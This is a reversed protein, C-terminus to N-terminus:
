GYLQSHTGITIFYITKGGEYEEFVARYYGTINISRCGSYEGGLAHNNLLPHFQERIFLNIREDCRAQEAKRLKKFRKKFNPHFGVKM